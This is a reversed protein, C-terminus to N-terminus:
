LTECLAVFEAEPMREMLIDMAADFVLKAGTSFDNSLRKLEIILDDTSLTNLKTVAIQKFQAATM